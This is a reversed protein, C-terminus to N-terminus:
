RGEGTKTLFKKDCLALGLAFTVTTRRCLLSNICFSLFINIVLIRRSPAFECRAAKVFCYFLSLKEQQCPICM